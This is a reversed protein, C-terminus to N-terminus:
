GGASLCNAYEVAGASQAFSLIDYTRSVIKQNNKNFRLVNLITKPKLCM